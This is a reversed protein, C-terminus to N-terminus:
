EFHNTDSSVSLYFVDAQYIDMQYAFMVKPGDAEDVVLEALGGEPGVKM